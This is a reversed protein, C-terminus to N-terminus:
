PGLDFWLGASWGSRPPPSGYGRQAKQGWAYAEATDFHIDQGAKLKALIVTWLVSHAIAFWIVLPLSGARDSASAALWAAIRRIKSSVFVLPKAPSIGALSM